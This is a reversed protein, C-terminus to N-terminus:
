KKFVEYMGWVGLILNIILYHVPVAFQDSFAFGVVGIVLLLASSVIAYVRMSSNMSSNYGINQCLQVPEPM